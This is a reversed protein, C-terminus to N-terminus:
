PKDGTTEYGALITSESRLLHYHSFTVDNALTEYRGPFQPGSSRSLRLPPHPSRWRMM